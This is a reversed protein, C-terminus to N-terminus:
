YNCLFVNIKFCYIKTFFSIFYELILIIILIYKVSNKANQLNKFFDLVKYDDKLGKKVTNIMLIFPCIVFGFIIIYNFKKKLEKTNITEKFNRFNSVNRNNLCNFYKSSTIDHKYVNSKLM